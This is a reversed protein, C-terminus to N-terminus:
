ENAESRRRRFLGQAKEALIQHHLVVELLGYCIAHVYIKVEVRNAGQNAFVPGGDIGPIVYVESVALGAADSEGLSILVDRIIGVLQIAPIDVGSGAFDM